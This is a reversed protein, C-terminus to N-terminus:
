RPSVLALIPLAVRFDSSWAMTSIKLPAIGYSRFVRCPLSM